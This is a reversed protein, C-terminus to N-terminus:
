GLVSQSKSEAPQQKQHRLSWRQQCHEAAQNGENRITRVDLLKRLLIVM